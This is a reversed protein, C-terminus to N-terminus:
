NYLLLPRIALNVYWKTRHLFFSNLDDEKFWFGHLAYVYNRLMRLGQYSIGSLDQNFDINRPLKYESTFVDESFVFPEEFPNAGFKPVTDPEATTDIPAPTGDTKPQNVISERVANDAQKEQKKSHCGTLVSIAAVAIILIAIRKM